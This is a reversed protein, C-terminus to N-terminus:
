NMEVPLRVGGRAFSEEIKEVIQMCAYSDNLTNVTHPVAGNAVQCLYDVAGLMAEPMNTSRYVPDTDALVKVGSYAYDGLTVERVARSNDVITMRRDSFLLDVEFIHYNYRYRDADTTCVVVNFGDYFLVFEYSFGDVEQNFSRDYALLSKPYGLLYTLTDLMTIGIHRLGKIYYGGVSLLTEPASTIQDRISRHIPDHRRQFNVVVKVGEVESLHELEKIQAATLAAPKEVFVVRCCRQVILNKVIGFHTEDPACVSVIDHFDEYIDEMKAVTNLVKWYQQFANAREIDKDFVTKLLFNGNRQYAGAHTYIGREDQNRQQDYGGAIQGAGIIAVTLDGM